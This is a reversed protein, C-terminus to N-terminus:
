LLILTSYKLNKYFNHLSYTFDEGQTVEKVGYIKLAEFNIFNILQDECFLSNWSMFTKKKREWDEFQWRIRERVSWIFDSVPMEVIVPSIIADRTVKISPFGVKFDRSSFILESFWNLRSLVGM